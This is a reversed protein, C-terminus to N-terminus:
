LNSPRQFLQRYQDMMAHETEWTCKEPSHRHWQVKVMTIDKNRLRRTERDIIAIPEEEYTVDEGVSIDQVLLIHTPDSVYKQLMSVHFIPHVQSMWPPLALRYSVGEVRDLIEFPGIYRPALKKKKGFRMLGKM